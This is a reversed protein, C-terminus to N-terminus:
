PQACRVACLRVVHDVNKHASKKSLRAQKKRGGPMVRQHRMPERVQSRKPKEGDGNDVGRGNRQGEGAASVQQKEPQHCIVAIWPQKSRECDGAAQHASLGGPVEPASPALRSQAMVHRRAKEPADDSPHLAV